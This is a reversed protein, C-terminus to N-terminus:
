NRIAIASRDLATTKPLEDSSFKQTRNGVPPISKKKNNKKHQWTSSETFQVLIFLSALTATSSATSLSVHASNSIPPACTAPLDVSRNILIATYCHTCPVTRPSSTEQSRLRLGRPYRCFAEVCHPSSVSLPLLVYSHHLRKLSPRVQTLSSGPRPPECVAATMGTFMWRTSSRNRSLRRM